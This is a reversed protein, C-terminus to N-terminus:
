RFAATLASVAKVVFSIHPDQQFRLEIEELPVSDCAILPGDSLSKMACGYMEEKYEEILEELKSDPNQLFASLHLKKQLLYSKFLTTAQLSSIFFKKFDSLEPMYPEALYGGQFVTRWGSLKRSDLGISGILWLPKSTLNLHKLHEAIAVAEEAESILAM